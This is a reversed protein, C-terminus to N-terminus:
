ICVCSVCVCVCVRVCAVVHVEYLSRYVNGCPNRAVYQLSRCLTRMSHLFLVKQYFIKLVDFYVAGLFHSGGLEMM